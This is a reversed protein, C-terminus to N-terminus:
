LDVMASRLINISFMGSLLHPIKNKTSTGLTYFDLTEGKFCVMFHVEGFRYNIQPSKM